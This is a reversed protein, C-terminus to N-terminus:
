DLCEVEWELLKEDGILSDNLIDNVWKRPNQYAKVKFTVEYTSLELAPNTSYTMILQMFSTLAHPRNPEFNISKICWGTKETIFDILNEDDLAHWIGLANDTIFKQDDISIEGMSDSFDFEISTVLYSRTKM